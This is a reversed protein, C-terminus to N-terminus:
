LEEPYGNFFDEIEAPLCDRCVTMFEFSPLSRRPFEKNCRACRDPPKPQSMKRRTEALFDDIYTKVPEPFSEPTKM